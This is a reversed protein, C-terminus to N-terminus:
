DTAATDAPAHQALANYVTRRSCRMTLAIETKSMSGQALLLAQRQQKADLKPRRGGHHGRARAAELGAVVREKILSREFEAFAGLMHLVMKGMATTTDLQAGPGDLIRLHVGRQDLDEFLELLHKLSRALRDLKWVVLTNGPQLAKLCALL